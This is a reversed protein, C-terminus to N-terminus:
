VIVIIIDTYMNCICLIIVYVKYSSLMMRKITM